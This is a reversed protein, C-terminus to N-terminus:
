VYASANCVYSENKHLSCCIYDQYQYLLIPVDFDLNYKFSCCIYDQYQYLLIPIDFELNYKNKMLCM